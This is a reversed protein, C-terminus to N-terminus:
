FQQDSRIKKQKPLEKSGKKKKKSKTPIGQTKEFKVLHNQLDLYSIEVLRVNSVEPYLIRLVQICDERSTCTM